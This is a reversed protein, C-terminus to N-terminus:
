RAHARVGRIQGVISTVSIAMVGLALVWALPASFGSPLVDSLYGQLAVRYVIVMAVGLAGAYLVASVGYILELRHTWLKRPQRIAKPLDLGLWRLSHARLNPHEVLDMLVYYGDYELLPNLNVLFIIFSTLAVEWCIAALVGSPSLYGIIAVLGGFVLNVYPGALSVAIRPWRDALWMDSTDVFTTPGYWYWGIGVRSVDLGFAKVTFAHGAEHLVVAFWEAPLLFLLLALGLDSDGVVNVARVTGLAFAVVGGIAIAALIIQAPITYFLFIGRKYLRSVLADINRLSLQFDLAKRALAAGRKWAVDQGAGRAVESIDTRLPIGQIFGSEGLERVLQAITNPAFTGFENRYQLTLDRLTSEGDIREWIFLGEPSLRFYTNTERNKLITLETGDATEQRSASINLAQHPRDRLQLLEFIERAVEKNAELAEILDSRNLSLSECTELARVTANRPVESLLAAEGILAGPKLTALRRQTGDEQLALVEVSGARLLYCTEGLEGQRVIDEGALTTVPELRESLKRAQEFSVNAFPSVRKLFRAVLMTEGPTEFITRADPYREVLQEASAPDLTLLVVDSIASATRRAVTRRTPSVLALEGFMEAPDQTALVVPGDPGKSSIEVRGEAIIYLFDVPGGESMVYAGAAHRQERLV